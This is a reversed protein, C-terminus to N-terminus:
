DKKDKENSKMGEILYEFGQSILLPFLGIYSIILAINVLDYSMSVGALYGTWIMLMLKTVWKPVTKSKGLALKGKLLQIHPM